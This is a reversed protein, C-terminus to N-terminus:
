IIVSLEELTEYCVEQKIRTNIYEMSLEHEISM